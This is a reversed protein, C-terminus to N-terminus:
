GGGAVATGKRCASICFQTKVYLPGGVNYRCELERVAYAGIANPSPFAVVKGNLESVDKIPSDKRTVLIGRLLVKDRVLPIYGQLEAAKLIHYPNMYVFDLKGAVFEKEFDQIQLTTVLNFDLGTRKQLEDIIPKWIAHLKRQEFQPVVGFSYVDAAYARHASLLLAFCLVVCVTIGKSKNFIKIMINVGKLFHYVMFLTFTYLLKECWIASKENM